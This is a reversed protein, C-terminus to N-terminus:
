SLTGFIVGCLLIHSAGKGCTGCEDDRRVCGEFFHNTSHKFEDPWQSCRTLPRASDFHSESKVPLIGNSPARWCRSLKGAPVALGDENLGSPRKPRRELPVYHIELVAAILPAFTAVAFLLRPM